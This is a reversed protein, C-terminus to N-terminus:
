TIEEIKEDDSSAPEKKSFVKVKAPRVLKGNLWYGSLVEEAVLGEDKKPDLVSGVAEHVHPDFPKGLADIKILGHSKFTEKMQKYILEIGSWVSKQAPDDNRHSLAREFNDLVPLLEHFVGELAFKFFDDREKLLRKKANEFDAASRLLRNQLEAFEKSKQILEEHEAKSLRVEDTQPSATEAGEKNGAPDNSPRPLGAGVNSKDEENKM